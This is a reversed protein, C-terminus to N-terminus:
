RNIEFQNCGQPKEHNITVETVEAAPPGQHCWNIMDTIAQKNGEFIAEVRGDPLNKVWGTIGLQKAQQATYYRYGVGQVKGSIILHTRIKENSM